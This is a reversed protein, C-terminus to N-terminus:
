KHTLWCRNFRASQMYDQICCCMYVVSWNVTVVHTVNIVSTVNIEL